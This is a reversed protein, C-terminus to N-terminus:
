SHGEPRAAEASASAGTAARTAAGAGVISAVARASISRGAGEDGSLNGSSAKLSVLSPDLGLLAAIAQQMEALREGLRPRAGVVTADVSAPRWGAAALRVVVESLLDASAV